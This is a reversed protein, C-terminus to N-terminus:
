EQISSAEKLATVEEDTLYGKAKMLGCLADFQGQLRQEAKKSVRLEGELEAITEKYPAIQEHMEQTSVAERYEEFVEWFRQQIVKPPKTVANLDKYAFLNPEAERLDALLKAVRGRNGKTIHHVASTNAARQKGSLTQVAAKVTDYTAKAQSM